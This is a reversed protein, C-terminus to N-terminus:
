AMVERNIVRRVSDPLLGASDLEMLEQRVEISTMVEARTSMQHIVAKIAGIPEVTPNFRVAKSGIPRDIMKAYLQAAMARAFEKVEEGNVLLGELAAADKVAQEEGAVGAAAGIGFSREVLQENGDVWAFRATLLGPGVFLEWVPGNCPGVAGGPILNAVDKPEMQVCYLQGKSNPSGPIATLVVAARHGSTLKPVTGDKLRENICTPLERRSFDATPINALNSPFIERIRGFNDLQYEIRVIGVEEDLVKVIAPAVRCSADGLNASYGTINGWLSQLGETERKARIAYRVAYDTFAQALARTGTTTDLIAARVPRIQLIRDMWRRSIRYDQRYSRKVSNVRGMWIPDPTEGGMLDVYMVLLKDLFFGKQIQEHSLPPAGAPPDAAVATLFKEFTIWTGRALSLGEVSLTPDTIQIVNDMSRTEDNEAVTGGSEAVSDFRLEHERVYYVKVAKPRIGSFNFRRVGLNGLGYIRPGIEQIKPIERQDLTNMVVVGGTDDVYLDAGPIHRFAKALAIPGYDNIDLDNVPVEQPLDPTIAFPFNDDGASLKKLVDTIMEKTKWRTGDKLSWPAFFYEDVAQQIEVPIIQGADELRKDGTRRRINYHGVVLVRPWKWRRDSLLLGRYHETSCPAEGLIYVQKFTHAKGGDDKWSMDLPKGLFQGQLLKGAEDADTEIVTQFPDFGTTIGWRIPAVLDLHQGGLEIQSTM